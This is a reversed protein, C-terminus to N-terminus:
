PGVARHRRRRTTRMVAGAVVQGYQFARGAVTGEIKLETEEGVAGQGADLGEGTLLRLVDGQLDVVYILVQTFGVGAAHEATMAPLLELPMLHSAALLSGLMRRGQTDRDRDDM